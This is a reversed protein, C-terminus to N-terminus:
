SHLGFQTDIFDLSISSFIHYSIDGKLHKEKFCFFVFKLEVSAVILISNQGKRASRLLTIRYVFGGAVASNAGVLIASNARFWSGGWFKSCRATNWNLRFPLRRFNVDIWSVTHLNIWRSKLCIFKEFLREKHKGIM